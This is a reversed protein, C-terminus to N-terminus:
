CLPALTGTDGSRAWMQVRGPRDVIVQRSADPRTRCALKEEFVLEVVMKEGYRTRVDGLGSCFNSSTRRNVHWQVCM